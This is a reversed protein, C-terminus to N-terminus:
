PSAIDVSWTGDAAVDLLYNGTNPITLAMSGSHSGIENVLLDVKGGNKDLLWIAFNSSGDHELQVIWLGKDLEYFPTVTRGTGLITVPATDSALAPPSAIDVSWTGDATVDLLYNGTNPITLAMSGSHSGIENVLLDVKGGNKDLLWIAFNSSGDHELQVIWLPKDLEYFPTVTRGTGLITIPKPTATPTLTPTATPVSTPTATPPVQTPTLTPTATPVSTPTATSPM